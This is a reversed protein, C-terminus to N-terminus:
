KKNKYYAGDNRDNYKNNLTISAEGADAVNAM